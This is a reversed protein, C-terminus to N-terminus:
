PKELFFYFGSSLIKANKTRATVLDLYKIPLVFIRFIKRLIKYLKESNGSFVIALYENLFWCLASSPGAAIGQHIIKFNRFLEKNGEITFRYYDNPAAHFPQLFPNEVYIIGKKKIVRSLEEVIKQPNKTHELVAQIIIGDFSNDKFPLNHADGILDVVKGKKIELNVVNKLLDSGLTEIGVGYKDYGGGVFLIKPSTNKELLLKRLEKYNKKAIFNFTASLSIM